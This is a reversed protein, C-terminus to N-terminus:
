GRVEQNPDDSSPTWDCSVEREVTAAFSRGGQIGSRWVKPAAHGVRHEYQFRGDPMIRLVRRVQGSDMLYCKGVEISEPAISM